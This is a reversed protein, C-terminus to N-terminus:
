QHRGATIPVVKAVATALDEALRDFDPEIGPLFETVLSPTPADITPTLRDIVAGPLYKKLPEKIVAVCELFQALSLRGETVQQYLRKPDIKGKTSGDRLEAIVLDSRAYRAGKEIMTQRIRARLGDDGAVHHEALTSIVRVPTLRADRIVDAGAPPKIV